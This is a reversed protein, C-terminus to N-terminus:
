IIQMAKHLWALPINIRNTGIGMVGRLGGTGFELNQYFADELDSPNDKQLSKIGAKTAEDYNGNLWKNIKDQTITNM